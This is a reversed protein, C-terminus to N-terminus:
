NECLWTSSISVGMDWGHPFGHASPGQNAVSFDLFTPDSKDHPDTTALSVTHRISSYALFRNDPSLSADTITWQGFPYQVTKYYKWDYPNSTDYMRVNFDKCCSYFFNGDNSFQGSYCRDNYHIIKDAATGPIM